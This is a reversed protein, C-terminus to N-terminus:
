TNSGDNVVMRYAWERRGPGPMRMKEIHMHAGRLERMRRLAERQGVFEIIETATHWQWDSMLQWVSAVGARLAPIDSAFLQADDGGLRKLDHNM